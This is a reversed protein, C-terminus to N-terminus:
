RQPSGPMHGPLACSATRSPWMGPPNEHPVAPVDHFQNAADMVQTGTVPATGGGDTIEIAHMEPMLRHESLQRFAGDGHAQRYRDDRELRLRAFVKGRVPHGRTEGPQPFLHLGQAPETHVPHQAQAEAREQCAQRRLFKDMDDQQFTQAHLIEHDPIIEAEAPVPGPIERQELTGPGHM